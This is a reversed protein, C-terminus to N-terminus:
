MMENEANLSYRSTKRDLEKKEKSYDGSNRPLGERTRMAFLKQVDEMKEETM